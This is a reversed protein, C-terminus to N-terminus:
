ATGPGGFGEASAATVLNPSAPEVAAESPARRRRVVRNWWMIAGTVFMIAPVVGVAAWVAKL